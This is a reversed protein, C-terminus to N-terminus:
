QGTTLDYTKMIIIDSQARCEAFSNYDVAIFADIMDIINELNNAFRKAAALLNTPVLITMLLMSLALVILELAIALHRRFYNM